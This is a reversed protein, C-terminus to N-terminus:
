KTHSEYRHQESELIMELLRSRLQSASEIRKTAGQADDRKALKARSQLSKDLKETNANM